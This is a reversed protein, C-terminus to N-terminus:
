KFIKNLRYQFGFYIIRNQYYNFGFNSYDINYYITSQNRNNVINNISFFAILSNEKFNFIKNITFDIKFYNDFTSSNIDGFYPKFNNANVNFTSNVIPTYNNGPRANFSLSTTFLRPNVYLAQAKIFYALNNSTNFKLGQQYGTQSLFTNSIGLSFKKTLNHNISFEFGTSKINNFLYLSNSNLDGSDQKYYFASTLSFKKKELYYDFAIQKSNLISINHFFYNPTSYSNYNGLSFIFRNEKNLNYFSSFQYSLFDNSNIDLFINKRLASSLGFNNNIKYDCYLYIESYNFNVEENNKYNPASNNLAYYYLPRIENYNYKANYFDYGYQITLNKNARYKHSFTLFYTSSNSNSEILGFSYDKISNDYLASIRFKSKGKLFDFNNISFFREQNANSNDIFNLNFNQTSYNENIYYNFTNFSLSENIKIRSNLGMDKTKFDNLNPLMKKNLSIFIDSFQNNGYFQVFNNKSINKNIMFGINSLASSIQINNLQLNKNTEIDVIGASSNGYILPPNSAYVYQKDIIETNLISFNGMGNDQGNRVPNLVPSGNIFVRSRDASGGRLTPNATEDSNTSAPLITIAKLPDGNSVPNFYIDLKEIKTVSFKESIPNKIAIIVEKLKNSKITDKVTVQGIAFSSTVLTCIQIIKFIKNHFHM